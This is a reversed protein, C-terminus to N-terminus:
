ARGGKAEVKLEKPDLTFEAEPEPEAAAEQTVKLKVDGKTTKIVIEGSREGHTNVYTTFLCSYSHSNIKAVQVFPNM